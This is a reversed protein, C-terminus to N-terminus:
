GLKRLTLTLCGDALERRGLEYRGAPLRVRREFCGHPMELRLIAGAGEPLPLPREGAVVLVGDEFRVDLREPKVGPLAVQLWLEDQTEVLDLPPEWCPARPRAPGPRFLARHMREAEELLDLAEAWMRNRVDSAM